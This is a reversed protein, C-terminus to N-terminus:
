PNLDSQNGPQWLLLVHTIFRFYEILPSHGTSYQVLNTAKFYCYYQFHKWQCLAANKLINDSRDIYPTFPQLMAFEIEKLGDSILNGEPYGTDLRSWKSGKVPIPQRIVRNQLFNLM